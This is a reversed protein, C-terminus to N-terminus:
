IGWAKKFPTLIDSFKHDRIINEDFVIKDGIREFPAIITLYENKRNLANALLAEKKNPNNAAHPGYRTDPSAIWGEGVIIVTDAKLTEGMAAVQRIMIHKDERDEMRLEVPYFMSESMLMISTIHFGDASMMHKGLNVFALLREELTTADRFSEGFESPMGDYAKNVAKSVEEMNLKETKWEHDALRGQRLKYWKTHSNRVQQMPVPLQCGTGIADIHFDCVTPNRLHDHAKIVLKLINSYCHVVASLIERDPLESDIWRREFEMVTGEEIKADPIMNGIIHCVFEDQTAPPLDYSQPEEVTWSRHLKVLFQSKTELDGCKEITNRSNVLWRM